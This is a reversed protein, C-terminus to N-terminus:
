DHGVRWLGIPTAQWARQGHPNEKLFVPIPQWARRWPIKGVWSDFGPRKHRRFQCIPEKGSLGRSTTATRWHSLRTQRKTVGHVAACWAERDKVMEPLKSLNMDISDNIANLRGTRQCRSRSRGEIKGLMLTKELSDARWMLHGFYQLKLNLMLGELSSEPSIGKPNVPKIERTDLPSELTKEWVVTWFCWDKLVWGEKHDLEWLWVHNSSFGYSQRFPCKDRSKLVNDLNTMAKRGLLLCRKIEHSCDGVGTIKSDLFIFDTVTEMTEGDMQWLTIPSSAVVKM